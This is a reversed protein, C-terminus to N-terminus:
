RGASPEVFHESVPRSRIKHLRIVTERPGKHPEHGLPVEFHTALQAHLSAKAHMPALMRLQLLGGSGAPAGVHHTHHQHRLRATIAAQELCAKTLAEGTAATGERRSNSEDPVLSLRYHPQLNVLSASAERRICALHGSPTTGRHRLVLAGGQVSECRRWCGAIPPVFFRSSFRLTFAADQRQRATDRMRHLAAEHAHGCIAGFVSRVLQMAQPLQHFSMSMAASAMNVDQRSCM